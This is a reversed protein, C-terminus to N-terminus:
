KTPRRKEVLCGLAPEDDTHPIFWLDELLSAHLKKKWKVILPILQMERNDICITLTAYWTPYSCGPVETWTVDSTRTPNVVLARENLLVIGSTRAITVLLNFLWGRAHGRCREKLVAVLTIRYRAM